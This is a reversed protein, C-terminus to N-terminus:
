EWFVTYRSVYTVGLADYTIGWLTDGRIVLPNRVPFGSYQLEEPLPVTGVWTGTSDFVEFAGTIALRWADPIGTREQVEAPLPEKFMPRNPWVWVRGDVTAILRAYAPREEPYRPDGAASLFQQAERGLRVRDGGPWRVRIVSGDLRQIDFEFDDPCGVAFTGAPSIAWMAKVVYPERTDEFFGRRFRPESRLPCRDWIRSPVFISDRVEGALSFELYALRPTPERGDRTFPPNVGVRVAGDASFHLGDEHYRPQGPPSRFVRSAGSSDILLVRGNRLDHAAVMGEPGFALGRTFGVENPGAGDRAVWGSFRGDRDFRKIGVNNDYVLISGDSGAAISMAYAFTAPGPDDFAGYRHVLQLGAPDAHMPAHNVV